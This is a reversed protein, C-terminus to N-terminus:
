VPCSILLVTEKFENKKIWIFWVIVAESLLFTRNNKKKRKGKVTTPQRACLRAVRCIADSGACAGFLEQRRTHPREEEVAMMPRM